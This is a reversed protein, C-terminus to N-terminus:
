VETAERVIRAAAQSFDEDSPHLSAVHRSFSDLLSDVDGSAGFTVENPMKKCSSCYFSYPNSLRFELVPEEQAM